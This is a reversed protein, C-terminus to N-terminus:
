VICCTALHLLGERVHEQAYPLPQTHLISTQVSMECLTEAEEMAYRKNASLGLFHETSHFEKISRKIPIPPSSNPNVHCQLM